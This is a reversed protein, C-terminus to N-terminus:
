LRLLRIFKLLSITQLNVRGKEDSCLFSQFVIDFPITALLDIVFSSRLYNQSIEKPNLVEQGTLKNIYTTRFNLVIDIANLLDIILNFGNFLGYPDHNLRYNFATDIPLELCNYITLIIIFIDWNERYPHNFKLIGM